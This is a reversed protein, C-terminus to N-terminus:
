EGGRAAAREVVPVCLWFRWTENHRKDSGPVIEWRVTAGVLPIPAGDFGWETDMRASTGGGYTGTPDSFSSFAVLDPHAARIVAHCERSTTVQTWEM